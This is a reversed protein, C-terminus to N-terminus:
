AGLLAGISPFDQCRPDQNGTNLEHIAPGCKLLSRLTGEVTVRAGFICALTYQTDHVQLIGKNILTYAGFALNSRGCV